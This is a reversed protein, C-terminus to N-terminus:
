IVDHERFDDHARSEHLSKMVSKSGDHDDSRQAMDDVEVMFELCHFLSTSPGAPQPHNPLMTFRSFNVDFILSSTTKKISPRGGVTELTEGDQLHVVHDM